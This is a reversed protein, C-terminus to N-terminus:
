RLSGVTRFGGQPTSCWTALTRALLQAPSRENDSKRVVAFWDIDLGQRTVRTCALTGAIVDPQLAWRSLISVGMGARVLELIADPLEVKLTRRPFIKAPEMFREREFGSEPTLSYTIYVEDRFAEAEVFELTSIPHTPPTVAVLEDQFLHIWELEHGPHRGPVIAIDISGDILMGLPRRIAPAVVEIQCEPSSEGLVKLFTPLWHYRTYSGLGLRIVHEVGKGMEIADREAREMEEFVRVASHYIREAAPTMRLRKGERSYLKLGLRREAERIRHTLASQSLGIEEAARTVSGTQAITTLMQLHQIDLKPRM